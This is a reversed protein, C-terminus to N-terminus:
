DTQFSFNIGKKDTLIINTIHERSHFMESCVMKRRKILQEQNKKNNPYTRKFFFFSMQSQFSDLCQRDKSCIIATKCIQGDIQFLGVRIGRAYNFAKWICLSFNEGRKRRLGAQAGDKSCVEDWRRCVLRREVFVLLMHPPRDM